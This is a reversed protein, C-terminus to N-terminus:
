MPFIKGTVSLFTGNIFARGYTAKSQCFYVAEDEKTVNTITLFHLDGDERVGFRKDKFEETFAAKGHIVEAVIQPLRGLTEKNWYFFQSGSDSFQCLFNVSHGLQAVTVSM